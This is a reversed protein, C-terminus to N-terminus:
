MIPAPFIHDLPEHNLLTSLHMLVYFLIFIYELAGWSCGLPLCMQDPTWCHGEGDHVQKYWKEEEPFSVQVMVVIPESGCPHQQHLHYGLSSHFGSKLSPHQTGLSSEQLPPPLRPSFASKVVPSSSCVIKMTRAPSLCGTASSTGIWPITYSYLSDDKQVGCCPHSWSAESCLAEAGKHCQSPQSCSHTSSTIPITMGVPCFNTCM